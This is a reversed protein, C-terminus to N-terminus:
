TGPMRMARRYLGSAEIGHVFERAACIKDAISVLAAEKCRPPLPTLPFMHNKIIDEEIGNVGVDRKANSLALGPHRFGHLRHASPTDHWDYLFYDHLLAGRIMSIEDVRIRYKRALVLSKYAVGVSHSYISTTGHQLYHMSEKLRSTQNLYKLVSAFLTRDERSLKWKRNM